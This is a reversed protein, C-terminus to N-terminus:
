DFFSFGPVGQSKMIERISFTMEYAEALERAEKTGTGGKILSKRLANASKRTRRKFKMATLGLRLVLVPARSAVM